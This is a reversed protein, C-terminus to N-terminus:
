RSFIFKVTFEILSDISSRLWFNPQFKIKALSFFATAMSEIRHRPGDRDLIEIEDTERHSRAISWCRFYRGFVRRQMGDILIIEPQTLLAWGLAYWCWLLCWLVLVRFPFQFPQKNSVSWMTSAQRIARFFFFYQGIRARPAPSVIDDFWLIRARLWPVDCNGKITYNCVHFLSCFTQRDSQYRM